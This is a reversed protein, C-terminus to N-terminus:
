DKHGIYNSIKKKLFIFFKQFSPQTTLATSQLDIPNGDNTRIWNMEIKTKYLKKKYCSQM